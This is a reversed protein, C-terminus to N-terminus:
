GKDIGEKECGEMGGEVSVLAKYGKMELMKVLESSCVGKYCIFFVPDKPNKKRLEEFKVLDFTEYSMSLAGKLSGMLFDKQKRLDIIILNNSKLLKKLEKANIKQM